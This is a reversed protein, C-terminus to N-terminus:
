HQYTTWQQSAPNHQVLSSHNAAVCLVHGGDVRDVDIWKGDVRNAVRSPKLRVGAAGSELNRPPHSVALMSDISTQPACPPTPPAPPRMALSLLAADGNVDNEGSASM